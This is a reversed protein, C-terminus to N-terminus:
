RITVINSKKFINNKENKQKGVNISIIRNKRTKKQMEIKSEIQEKM